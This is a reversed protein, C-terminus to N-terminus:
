LERIHVDSQGGDLLRVVFRSGDPYEKIPEGNVDYLIPVGAELQLRPTPGLDTIREQRRRALKEARLKKDREMEANAVSSTEM